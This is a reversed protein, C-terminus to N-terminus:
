GLLTKTRSGMWKAFRHIFVNAQAAYTRVLTELNVCFTQIDRFGASIIRMVGRPECCRDEVRYFRVTNLECRRVLGYKYRVRRPLLYDAPILM